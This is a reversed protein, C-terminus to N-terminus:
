DLDFYSLGNRWAKKQTQNFCALLCVFLLYASEESIHLKNYQIYLINLEKSIYGGVRRKVRQLRQQTFDVDCTLPLSSMSLRSLYVM